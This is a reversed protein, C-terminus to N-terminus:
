GRDRKRAQALAAAECKPCFPGGVLELGLECGMNDMLPAIGDRYVSVKVEGCACRPTADCPIVITADPKM